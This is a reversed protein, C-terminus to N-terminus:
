FDLRSAMGMLVRAEYSQVQGEVGTPGTLASSRDTTLIALTALSATRNPDRLNIRPILLTVSFDYADPIQELAVTVVRAIATSEVRIAAGSVTVARAKDQYNFQPVGTLSTTAYTIAVDGGRLEFQTPEQV